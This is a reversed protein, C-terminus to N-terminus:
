KIDDMNTNLKFKRRPGGLERNGEPLKSLFEAYM